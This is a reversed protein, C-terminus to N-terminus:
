ERGRGRARAGRGRGRNSAVGKERGNAKLRMQFVQEVSSQGESRKLRHEHSLLSGM